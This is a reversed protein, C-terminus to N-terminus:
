LRGESSEVDINRAVKVSDWVKDFMMCGEHGIECVDLLADKGRCVAKAGRAGGAAGSLAM